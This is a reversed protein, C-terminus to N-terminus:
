DDTDWQKGSLYILRAGASALMRANMDRSHMDLAEGEDLVFVIAGRAQPQEDRRYAAGL